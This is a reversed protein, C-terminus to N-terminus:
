RLVRVARGNVGVFVTNDNAISIAGPYALTASSRAGDTYGQVGNGAFITVEGAPTMKRIRANFADTIYFNGDPGRDITYPTSFRAVSGTGNAYGSTGNGAITTVVGTPTIKRISHVSTDVFYLNGDSDSSLGRGVGFRAATGTGDVYGTSGGVGAITTVVGSPTIKALRGTAMVYLNGDSDFELANPNQLSAATGTGDLSSAAGSGAFTSVIGTQLNIKRIRNNAGDAVYLNEGSSDLEIDALNWFEASSLPGDTYGFSNTGGGAMLETVGTVTNIKRISHNSGREVAYITGKEDYVIGVVQNFLTDAPAGNAFGTTTYSGSLFSVTTPDPFPSETVASLSPSLAACSNVGSGIEYANALSSYTSSEPNYTRICYDDESVTVDIINGDTPEFGLDSDVGSPSYWSKGGVESQLAYQTQLASLKDTDSLVANDIARGRVGNFAVITIAALIGIVTIVIILEVVTFAKKYSTGLLSSLTQM